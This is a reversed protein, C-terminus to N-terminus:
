PLKWSVKASVAGRIAKDDAKIPLGPNFFEGSGTIGSFKGTGGALKITAHHGGKGDGKGGSYPAFIHDGDRDTYTCTGLDDQVNGESIEVLGVCRQGFNNLILSGADNRTVGDIEYVIFLRNGQQMTNATTAVWFATFSEAGEKPTDAAHVSFSLLALVAITWLRHSM